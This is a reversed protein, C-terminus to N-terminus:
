KIRWVRIGNEVSRATFEKEPRFRRYNQAIRSLSHHKNEETSVEVFFSDGINMLRWPYKGWNFNKVKKEPIPIGKEIELM